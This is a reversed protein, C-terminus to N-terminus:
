EEGRMTIESNGLARRRRRGSRRAALDIVEASPRSPQLATELRLESDILIAGLEAVHRGAQALDQPGDRVIKLLCALRSKPAESPSGAAVARFALRMASSDDLGALWDLHPGAEDLIRQLERRQSAVSTKSM